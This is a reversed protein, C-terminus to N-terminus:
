LSAFILPLFVPGCKEIVNYVVHLFELGKGLKKKGGLDDSLM